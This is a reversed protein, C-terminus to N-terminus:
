TQTQTHEEAEKRKFNFFFLFFAFSRRRIDKWHIEYGEFKSQTPVDEIFQVPSWLAIHPESRLRSALCDM